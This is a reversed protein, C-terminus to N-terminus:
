LAEWHELRAVVASYWTAAKPVEFALPARLLNVNPDIGPEHGAVLGDVVPLVFRRRTFPNEADPEHLVYLFGVGGFRTVDSLSVVQHYWSKEASPKPLTLTLAKSRKADFSFARGGFFIGHFDPESKGTRVCIVSKGDASNGTIRLSENSRWTKARKEAFIRANEKGIDTEWKTGGKKRARQKSSDHRGM